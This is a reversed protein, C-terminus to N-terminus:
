GRQAMSAPCPAEAELKDLLLRTAEVVDDFFCEPDHQKRRWNGQRDLYGRMPAFVYYRDDASLFVISYGPRKGLMDIRRGFHTHRTRSGPRGAALAKVYRVV